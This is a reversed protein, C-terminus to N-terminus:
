LLMSCIQTTHTTKAQNDDKMVLLPCCLDSSGLSLSLPAIHNEDQVFGALRGEKAWRYLFVSWMTAIESTTRTTNRASIMATERSSIAKPCKRSATLMVSWSHTLHSSGITQTAVHKRLPQVNCKAYQEVTIQSRSVIENFLGHRLTRIQINLDITM